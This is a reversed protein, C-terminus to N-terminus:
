NRGHLRENESQAMDHLVGVMREVEKGLAIIEPNIEWESSESYAGWDDSSMMTHHKEITRWLHTLKTEFHKLGLESAENSLNYVDMVDLPVGEVGFGDAFKKVKRYFPPLNERDRELAARKEARKALYLPLRISVILAAVSVLLAAGSFGYTIIDGTTLGTM